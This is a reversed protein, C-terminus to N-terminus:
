FKFKAGITILRGPSLFYESDNHRNNFIDRIEAYASFNETLAKSLKADFTIYPEIFGSNDDTTFQKDKYVSAFSVSLLQNTWIIGAKAQNKPSYKLMKGELPPDKEFKGIKSHTFNYNAFVQIHNGLNASSRVEFGFIRVETINQRQYVPRKGWLSDGTAVYYLFDRGRAYFVTPALKINKNIAVDAGMEFNDIKEPGLDPNAIKPGVWMWGSRCLDDLISARFGRSWSSFLRSNDSMQYTIGVRPSVASWFHDKLEPLYGTWSGDTSFYSGGHFRAHDFRVGINLSLKEDFLKQEDQLYLAYTDLKGKNVVSDPSTFYYDGGDVSGFRAEAGYVLKNSGSIQNSLNLVAGKDIRDSKVDFRSYDGGRMREDLKFYDEKQYFVNLNYSYRGNNGNIKMGLFDTDFHRYEGEPALIKEGEGKKNRYHDYQFEMNLMPDVMWGAKTSINYEDLFRSVSYDPEERFEAPLDNYGDSTNYMGSATFYLGNKFSSGVNLSSMLTNYTGYSLKASGEIRETPKRTIINIVGGMANNGYISSGPGHFVEIREIDDPNFRSWNVGGTDGKNVPVGDVLVLTRGQEDGSIGRLTVVPRM